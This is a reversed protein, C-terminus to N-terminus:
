FCVFSLNGYRFSFLQQKFLSRHLLTISSVEKSFGNAHSLFLTIGKASAPRSKKPYYRNVVNWLLYGEEVDAAPKGRTIRRRTEEFGEAISQVGARREQLSTSADHKLIKYSVKVYPTQRPYAAPVIHTSVLYGEIPCADPRRSQAEAPLSPPSSLLHAPPDHLPFIPKPNVSAFSRPNTPQAYSPSSSTTTM